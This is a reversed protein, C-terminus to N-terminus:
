GRLPVPRGLATFLAEYNAIQCGDSRGITVDVPRGDLTGTVRAKEPGGYQETCARTDDEASAVVKELAGVNECAATTGCRLAMRLPGAQAGTVEISLRTSEEVAPKSAAPQEEDAGCGGVALTAAILAPLVPVLRRM